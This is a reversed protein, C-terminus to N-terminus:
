IKSDDLNEIFMLRVGNDEAPQPQAPLFCKALADLARLAVAPDKLKIQGTPSGNKDLVSEELTTNAVIQLLKKVIFSKTM